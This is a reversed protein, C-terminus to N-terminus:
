NIAISNTTITTAVRTIAQTSGPLTLVACSAGSRHTVLDYMPDRNISDPEALPKPSTVVVRRSLKYSVM